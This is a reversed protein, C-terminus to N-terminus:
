TTWELSAMTGLFTAYRAVPAAFARRAAPGLDALPEAALTTGKATTTRRWIGCVRGDLVLTAQFVGNNGPVVDPALEPPLVASRDKYGLLLEDFGPLLHARSTLRSAAPPENAMWLEADGVRMRALVPQALTLALKADAVTLGTWWVFDRLTAPGHSTFYREAIAQLAEDRERTPSPPIWDDFLTFTPLREAHPGFCLMRDMCLHRLIHIGRQGTTAVGGQQLVAFLANRSLVPEAALARAILTRSRRMTAADLELQRHRGAASRMVRPALLELMWRADAAAVFHLTGRMPWTRVIARGAIAREVDAQTCGVIRLAISWLAGRYDQAQVAGLRSVVSEPTTGAAHPPSIRQAALRLSALSAAPM